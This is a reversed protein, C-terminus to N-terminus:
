KSTGINAPPTLMYTHTCTHPIHSSTLGAEIGDGGIITVMTFPLFPLLHPRAELREKVPRLLM